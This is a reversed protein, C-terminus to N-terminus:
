VICYVHILTSLKRNVKRKQKMFKENNNWVMQLYMYFYIIVMNCSFFIEKQKEQHIKKSFISCSLIRKFIESIKVPVQPM